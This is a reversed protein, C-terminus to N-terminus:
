SQWRMTARSDSVEPRQALLRHGPRALRGAAAREFALAQGTIRTRSALCNARRAAGAACAWRRGAATCADAVLPHGRSALHVRIQHTRGTHLLCRVLASVGDGDRLRV